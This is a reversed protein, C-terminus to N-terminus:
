VLPYGTGSDGEEVSEGAGSAGRPAQAIQNVTQGERLAELGVKAKFSASYAKRTKTEGM